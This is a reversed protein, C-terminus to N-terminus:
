ASSRAIVYSEIAMGILTPTSILENQAILCIADRASPRVNIRQNWPIRPETRDKM